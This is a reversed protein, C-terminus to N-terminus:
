EFPFLRHDNGWGFVQAHRALAQPTDAFVELASNGAVLQRANDGQGLAASFQDMVTGVAQHIDFGAARHFGVREETDIAHGLGDDAQRQHHQVVFPAQLQMIGHGFVYWADAFHLDEAM